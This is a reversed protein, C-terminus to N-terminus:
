VLKVLTLYEVIAAASTLIFALIELSLMERFLPRLKTVDAGQFFATKSAQDILQPMVVERMRVTLIAMILFALSLGIWFFPIVQM